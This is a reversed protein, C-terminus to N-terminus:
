DAKHINTNLKHLWTVYGLYYMLINQRILLQNIKDSLKVLLLDIKVQDNTYKINNILCTFKSM